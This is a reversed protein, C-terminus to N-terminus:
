SFSFGKYYHYAKEQWKNYFVVIHLVTNVRLATLIPHLDQRDITHLHCNLVGEKICAKINSIPCLNHIACLSTYFSLFDRAGNTRILAVDM